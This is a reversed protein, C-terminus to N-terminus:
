VKPTQLGKWADELYTSLYESGAQSLHTTDRYVLDSTGPVLGNCEVGEENKCFVPFLDLYAVNPGLIDADKIAERVLTNLETVRQPATYQQVGEVCKNEGLKHDWYQKLLPRQSCIRLHQHVKRNITPTTGVTATRHSPGARFRNVIDLLSSLWTLFATRM